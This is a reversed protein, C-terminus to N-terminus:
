YGAQLDVRNPLPEGRAATNLLEALHLMRLKGTDESGGGRHPSMVVNELEHFPFVAPPVPSHPDSDPPYNYWVDLGAGRLHEERLSNFLAEAEVIPGRGVNVLVAGRPMLALEKEGILGETEPTLPLAIILVDAQPLLQPLAELGYIEAVDDSRAEPNRRVGLIRMQMASLVQGVHQGIAGYGLILATKGWLLMSKTREYRPAWNHTRMERDYPIVFKAAAFLLALATEAAPAANHHLNHVTIEPFERMLERTPDPLGAWPIVLVKLNPSAEVFERKPMGDILIHYEAPDPIEEGITLEIGPDLNEMLIELDTSPPPRFIHVKMNQITGNILQKCLTSVSKFM